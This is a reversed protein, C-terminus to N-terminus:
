HSTTLKHDRKVWECREKKAALKCSRNSLVDDVSTGYGESGAETTALGPTAANLLAAACLAIANRWPYFPKTVNGSGM